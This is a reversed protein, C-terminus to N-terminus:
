IQNHAQNIQWSMVEALTIVVENIKKSKGILYNCIGNLEAVKTTIRIQEELPPLPIEFLELVKKSLGERAMGIQREWVLRQFYPSQICLHLYYKTEPRIPRIITVHQSVNAEALDDSFMTSRGLSAGTINLLIDNPRVATNAMKQHTKETIYAVDDLELGHNWVNQSRLFPIGSQVYASRGGRPTNGSGIKGTINGLRIFSWGKPLKFPEENEPIGALQSQNNLKGEKILQDKEKAIKKLLESAPEAKPDQEVLKGMVALQLITQKLQDISEETTFLIDFHDKIRNWTEKFEKYGKAGTLTSLLTKVLTQHTETNETEQKELQDCLAMLEDVKAVIRHQETESVVPFLALRAKDTGMRPLNMGHTSQNAYSIFYPSKMVLRLFNPTICAYGRLPIMETTCVGDEDAILVKDLYPRLKGYIVDGEIFCNKSSRFRRDSFRVKKLLKSTEKEVDELELVWTTSDVSGPEAKEAIGYNTVEGVRTWKWSDPIDFLKEDEGIEPLPKQRKIKGEKILKEKEKAIKKLLESAPEDNSDQPVLKGRVALELILERLKKIGYITQGNTSGNGRGGNAKPARASTWIDLHETILNKM